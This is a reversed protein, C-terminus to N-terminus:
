ELASEFIVLVSFIRRVDKFCKNSMPKLDEFIRDAFVVMSHTHKYNHVDFLEKSECIRDCLLRIISNGTLVGSRIRSINYSWVSWVRLAVRRLMYIYIRYLLLVHSGMHHTHSDQTNTQMHTQVAAWKKSSPWAIIADYIYLHIRRHTHVFIKVGIMVSPYAKTTYSSISRSNIKNYNSHFAIKKDYDNVRQWM